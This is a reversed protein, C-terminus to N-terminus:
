DKTKTRREIIEMLSDYLAEDFMCGGDCGRDTKVPSRCLACRIEEELGDTTIMQMGDAEMIGTMKRYLDKRCQRCLCITTGLVHGSMNKGFIMRIIGSDDEVDRGCSACTGLWRDSDECDRLYKVEIM